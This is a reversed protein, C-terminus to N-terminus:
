VVNTKFYFVCMVGVNGKGSKFINEPWKTSHGMCLHNVQSCLNQVFPLLESNPMNSNDSAKKPLFSSVANKLDNELLSHNQPMIKCEDHNITNGDCPPQTSKDIFAKLSETMNASTLGTRFPFPTSSSKDLAGAASSSQLAIM